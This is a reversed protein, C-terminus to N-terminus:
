AVIKFNYNYHSKNSPSYFKRGEKSVKNDTLHHKINKIITKLTNPRNIIVYTIFGKGKAKRSEPPCQCTALLQFIKNNKM